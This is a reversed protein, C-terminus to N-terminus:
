ECWPKLIETLKRIYLTQNLLVINVVIDLMFVTTMHMAYYAAIQLAEYEFHSWFFLNSQPVHCFPHAMNHGM